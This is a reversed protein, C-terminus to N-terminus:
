ALNATALESHEYGTLRLAGLNVDIIRRTRGDAVFIGDVTQDALIRYRAKGDLLEPISPKTRRRSSRIAKGPLTAGGPSLQKHSPKSGSRDPRAAAQPQGYAWGPRRSPMQADGFPGPGM